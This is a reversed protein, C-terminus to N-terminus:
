LPIRTSEGVGWGRAFAEYTKQKQSNTKKLNCMYILEYLVQRGRNPKIRKTYHVQAEETNSCIFLKSRKQIYIHIMLICSVYTYM